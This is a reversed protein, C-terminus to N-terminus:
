PRGKTEKRAENSFKRALAARKLDCVRTGGAWRPAWIYGCQAGTHRRIRNMMKFEAVQMRAAYCLGARTTEEEIKNRRNRPKEFMRAIELWAAAETKTRKTM